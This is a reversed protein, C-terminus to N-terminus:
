SLELLFTVIEEPSCVMDAAGLAIAAEPMVTVEATEPSQVITTGGLQKIRLLGAVGDINAGSCLIAICKKDFIEAATTFLVDIAPRCFHLKEDCCLSFADESEVQLHYDCPSIFIKKETIKQKDFVEVVHLKTTSSLHDIFSTSSEFSRHIVLTIPFSFNAPLKSLIQTIPALAGASGGIFVYHEFSSKM